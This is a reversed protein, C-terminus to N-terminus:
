RRARARLFEAIGEVVGEAYRAQGDPHRLAAEQDPLMMFLGETLIAPMWTPRVLALDGRAIGLDRQGLTRLLAAQVARALPISRPHNYYVSTGHNTFPNVGDPLANNHISVLLDADASDAFRARPWLDISSTDQRTLLVEAGERLLLDRVRLAIPLNAEPERLGTPGMAGGPPHGADVVIRLGHFPRRLDIPPPRRIELVLDTRDWRVRHGWVPVSLDVTLHVEDASVQRWRMARVLSDARGYRMWDIDGATHYLVLTLTREDEDVQYPVRRSLPVRLVARDARPTLTVSGATARVAASGTGLPHVDTAAVWASATSSLYLRVDGNIRATALARTGTPFFWHYTGGPLARGVTMSDTGGTGATDDDLVVDVPLSDVLALRLNWAVRVTDAGKIAEIVAAPQGSAPCGGGAEPCGGAAAPPAPLRGVMPGPDAGIARGRILGRYREAVMPRALNASDRDFARIGWPVDDYGIDPALPIVTGDALRIRVTAGEAARVTVPLYENAPWWVRGAPWIPASDVWLTRGYPAFRPARRLPHVVRVTDGRAAAVLEFRMQPQRPFPVWALWAGNPWVRVPTGNITLTADGTGVSGFIFSSDRVDVVANAPPYVVKLALPGTM